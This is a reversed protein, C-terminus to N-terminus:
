QGVSIRPEPDSPAAPAISGSAPPAARTAAIPPRDIGPFPPPVLPAAGRTHAAAYQTASDRDYAAWLALVVPALLALHMAAGHTTALMVASLTVLLAGILHRPRTRGGLFVALTAAIMLLLAALKAGRRIMLWRGEDANDGSWLEWPSPLLKEHATVPRWAAEIATRLNILLRSMRPQQEAAQRYAPLLADLANGRVAIERFLIRKTDLDAPLSTPLATKGGGDPKFETADAQLLLRWLPSTWGHEGADASMSAHPTVALARSEDRELDYIAPTGALALAGEARPPTPDVIGLLGAAILAVGVALGLVAGVAHVSRTFSYGIVIPLGLWAWPWALGAFIFGLTGLLGGVGPLLALATSVAVLAAPLMIGPDGICELTGPFVCLLAAMELGCEASFLRQGILMLAALTLLFLLGNVARCAYLDGLDVWPQGAWAERNGWNLQMTEGNSVDPMTPPVIRVAGAHLLTVLPSVESAQVDDGYPLKGTASFCLGGVLGDRSSDSLPATSIAHICLALGALFLVCTPGAPLNGALPAARRQYLLTFGRVLWYGCAVSLGAYAWWQGTREAVLTRGDERLLMLLGSGALVLADLTRLRFFQRPRISLALIAVAAFWATSARDLSPWFWSRSSVYVIRRDHQGAGVLEAKLASAPKTAAQTTPTTAKSQPQTTPEAALASAYGGAALGICLISALTTWRTM